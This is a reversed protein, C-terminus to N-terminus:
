FLRLQESNRFQSFDLAPMKRDGLYKQKSILHLQKIHEAYRGEGKMRIGVRSDSTKGGHMEAIQSLVKDAKNPFSRKIWDRFITEVSGNLRVVTYGVFLAGNEASTKIISPIEHDNLGPIIPATMVGVPIGLESMKRLVELRKVGSVTRPELARRLEENLSTISLIVRVLNRKAMRALIDADRLVLANKTIISIPNGYKECILLMKRMLEFKKEVPQYCDTNGSFMIVDPKYSKKKLAIEILAPANKKVIIKQEFDIGASFGFYEHTNRAYCYVCGHECGQYPNVSYGAPIDPTSMKNMIKKPTEIYIKTKPSLNFDIDNLLEEDYITEQSLFRNNSNGQAGRGKIVTRQM